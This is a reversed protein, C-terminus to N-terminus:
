RYAMIKEAAIPTKALQPIAVQPAAVLKERISPILARPPLTGCAYV